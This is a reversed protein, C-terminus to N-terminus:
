ENHRKIVEILEKHYSFIDGAGVTFLVDGKRILGGLIELGENKSKSYYVNKNSKRCQDVLGKSSITPDYKERASAYIDFILAVDFLSIERVFEVFLSKTRSFTHPQFILVLRRGPFWARSALLLSKLESPHHAYDDYLSIGNTEFVKEFRRNLGVFKLLSGAINKYAVGVLHAIVAAATANLVNYRGPILIEFRGLKTVNFITRGPLFVPDTIRFDANKSFGYSIVKGKYNKLTETVGFNDINAVLTGTNPLKNFFNLFATKTEEFNRYVDPHDYEINTVATITPSQWMFRPTNNIGPSTAYEDAEAVFYKGSGIYGGFGIPNIRAIGIAYSPDFGSLKLITALMASTSGKGGVGCVSIGSFGQMLMGLAEAHTFVPINTSKSYTAEINNLGGHAGTVIVIDPRGVNEEKFGPLVEIEAEALVSDTVFTEGIDSGTVKLELQKAIIAMATMAVGKIGIFHVKTGRKFYNASEMIM